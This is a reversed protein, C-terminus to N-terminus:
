RAGFPLTTAPLVLTTVGLLYFPSRWDQAAAILALVAAADGLWAAPSRRLRRSRAFALMSATSYALALAILGGDYPTVRDVALLLVAIGTTPARTM